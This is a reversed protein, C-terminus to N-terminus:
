RYDIILQIGVLTLAGRRGPPLRGHLRLPRDAAAGGMAESIGRAATLPVCRNGQCLRLAPLDGPPAEFRWRVRTIEAGAPVVAPPILPSSVSDQDGLSIRLAPPESVWSGSAAAQGAILLALLAAPWHRM